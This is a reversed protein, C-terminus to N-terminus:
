GDVGGAPQVTQLEGYGAVTQPWDAATRPLRVGHALLQVARLVGAHTIWLADRGSVRWADWAAGLRQMLQEVTEAGPAPPAHAFDDCWRAMAAPDVDAWRVGEWAGFDFERLRPDTSPSLDPRLAHLADALQVCRQLPSVWSTLGIPLQRALERAAVLTAAPDAPWDSAGYCRGDAGPVVAHRALWLRPPRKATM